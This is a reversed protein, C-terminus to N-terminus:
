SGTLMEEQRNRFIPYRHTTAIGCDDAFVPNITVWGIRGWACGHRGAPTPTGRNLM